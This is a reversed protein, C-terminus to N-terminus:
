DDYDDDIMALDAASPRGRKRRARAGMTLKSIARLMEGILRKQSPDHLNRLRKVLGMAHRDFADGIDIEANGLGDLGEFFFTIPVELTMAMEYLTSSSVRNVGSEYKQVQQFSVGLRRGLETQSMVMSKRRLQIRKGVHVDVPHIPMNRGAM